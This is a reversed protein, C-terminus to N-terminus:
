RWRSRPPSSAARGASRRGRWRISRAAARSPAGRRRHPSSGSTDGAAPPEVLEAQLLGQLM